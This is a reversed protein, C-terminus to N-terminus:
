RFLSKGTMVEPKRINFQELVTPAVDGLIGQERLGSLGVSHGLIVLPVRNKSHETDTEGTSLDRLEEINGHDATVILVGKNTQLAAMIMGLASDVAKLALTCAALNGTHAVMDLNAINAAIFEHSRKTVARIIAQTIEETAMAPQEDYRRVDPSSILMREEGAVPDAYGGNFFYTMHAYKETEAIYLQKKKALTMPLTHVVDESPYATLIDGLDPGFDSMAVFRLNNVKPHPEFAGPNMGTFNKQVFVKALQRARDSRHNFLIVSDNDKIRAVPKEGSYIIHPKIYEDSLGEGYAAEFVQIPDEGREGRGSVVAEYARKTRGWQKKRDMGYFRGMISAIRQEPHMKDLLQECLEKGSQPLSDRGDTFLHVYVKKLNVHHMLSLLAYLHEPTSHASQGDSLLGMIHMASDNRKVHQIAEAFAPNKNFTGDKISHSIVVADQKVIRGAGINLHGAESNGDQDKPLGVYEGHAWLMCHQGRNFLADFAPLRTQSIPNSESEPAVGWGDLILLVVLAARPEQNM